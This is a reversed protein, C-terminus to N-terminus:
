GIEESRSKTQRFIIIFTDLSLMQSGQHAPRLVPAAPRAPSDVASRSRISDVRWNKGFVLILGVKSVRRAPM